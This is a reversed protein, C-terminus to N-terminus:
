INSILSVDKLHKWRKLRLPLVSQKYKWKGTKEHIFNMCTGGSISKSPLTLLGFEDNDLYQIIARTCHPAEWIQGNMFRIDLNM